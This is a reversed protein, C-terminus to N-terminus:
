LVYKSEQGVECQISRSHYELAVAEPVANLNGDVVVALFIELCQLLHCARPWALQELRECTLTHM